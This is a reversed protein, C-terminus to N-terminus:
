DYNDSEKMKNTLPCKIIGAIIGEDTFYAMKACLKAWDLETFNQFM